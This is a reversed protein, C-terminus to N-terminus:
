GPSIEAAREPSYEDPASLKFTEDLCVVPRAADYARRYVELVDEMHFVFEALQKPPICWM